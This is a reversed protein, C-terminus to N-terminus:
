RSAQPFFFSPLPVRAERIKGDLVHACEHFPSPLELTPMRRLVAVLIDCRDLVLGLDFELFRWIEKRCRRLLVFGRPPSFECCMQKEEVSLLQEFQKQMEIFLLDSLIFNDAFKIRARIWRNSVVLIHCRWARGATAVQASLISQVTMRGVLGIFVYVVAHPSALERIWLM